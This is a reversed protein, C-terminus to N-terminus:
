ATRGLPQPALWALLADDGTEELGRLFFVLPVATERFDAALRRADAGPRGLAAASAELSSLARSVHRRLAAQEGPAAARLDAAWAARVDGIVELLRTAAAAAVPAPAAGEVALRQLYDAHIRLLRKLRVQTGLTRMAIEIM